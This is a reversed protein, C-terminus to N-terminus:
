EYMRGAHKAIMGLVKDISLGQEYGQLSADLVGNLFPIMREKKLYEERAVAPSFEVLTRGVMSIYFDKGFRSSYRDFLPSIKTIHEPKDASYLLVCINVLMTAADYPQANDSFHEWDIVYIQGDNGELVNNLRLDGHASSIPMVGLQDRMAGIRALHGSDIVSEYRSPYTDLKNKLASPVAYRHNTQISVTDIFRLTKELNNFVSSPDKAVHDALNQQHPIYDMCIMPQDSDMTYVVNPMQCDKSFHPVLMIAELERKFGDRGRLYTKNVSNGDIEVKNIGNTITVM